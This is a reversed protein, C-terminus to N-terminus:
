DGSEQGEGGHGYNSKRVGDRHYSKSSDRHGYSSRGYSSGRGGSRYSKHFDGDKHFGGKHFDGDKHFSSSKHFDGDRHPAYGDQRDDDHRYSKHFSSSGRRDDSHGYGSHGYDKHGYDSHGYNSHGSDRHGYDSHGYDSHGYSKHFDRHGIDKHGYGGEDRDDPNFKSSYAYDKHEQEDNRNYQKHSYSANDSHRFGGQHSDRGGFSGRRDGSHYDKHFSSGGRGFSSHGSRLPPRSNELRRKTEQTDMSDTSSVFRTLSANDEIQTQEAPNINENNESSQDANPAATQAEQSADTEDHHYYKKAFDSRASSFQRKGRYGGQHSDHGQGSYGHSVRSYDPRDRRMEDDERESEKYQEYNDRFIKAEPTMAHVTEDEMTVDSIIVNLKSGLRFFVLNDDEDRETSQIDMHRESYTYRQTPDIDSIALFVEIGNSLELFMGKSVLGVVVGTFEEGIHKTMYKCSELDDVEREIDAARREAASTAVGLNELITHLHDYDFTEQNFVFRRLTRHVILDPYRRIPSTFHLYNEEALGFHGTNDPSYKAKALSRLLFGSVAFKTDPDTISNYWHSVTSSTVSSPFDQILKINRLFQKFLEIKESPPNDHVRYLTPIKQDSLFKAVEVNAIIMLDEIMKEGEGQDRKIVETPNGQEDLNFKLETSDLDLAGQRERRARILATAERMLFLMQVISSSMEGKENKSFLDNVEGYTLRGHSNIVGPKIVSRYVNGAQDVDMIVSLVLRDVNPNLSCIGNSLETPLMPVVRDAVYISTGRKSAEDDLPTNPTVYYSVDAIYVGIRYGNTIKECSVADDFDLADAGDITVITQKRYDERGEIDKDSITQPIL